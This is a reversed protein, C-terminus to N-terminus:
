EETTPTEDGTAGDPIIHPNMGDPRYIVDEEKEDTATTQEDETNPEDAM